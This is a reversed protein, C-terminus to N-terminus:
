TKDGQGQVETRHYPSHTGREEQGSTSGPCITKPELLSFSYGLMSIGGPYCVRGHFLSESGQLGFCHQTGAAQEWGAGKQSTCQGWVGSSPTQAWGRSWVRLLLCLDRLSIDWVAEDAAWEHSCIGGTPASADCDLGSHEKSSM